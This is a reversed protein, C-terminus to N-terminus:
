EEIKLRISNFKAAYDKLMEVRDTDLLFYDKIKIKCDELKVKFIEIRGSIGPSNPDCIIDSVLSLEKESKFFYENSM